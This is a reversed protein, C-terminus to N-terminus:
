NDFKLLSRFCNNISFLFPFTDISVKGKKFFSSLSTDRWNINLDIKMPMYYNNKLCNLLIYEKM